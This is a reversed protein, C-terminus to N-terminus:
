GRFNIGRFNFGCFITVMFIQVNVTCAIVLSKAICVVHVHVPIYSTIKNVQLLHSLVTSVEFSGIWEKSGLFSAQSLSVLLHCVWNGVVNM